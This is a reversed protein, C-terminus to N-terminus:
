SRPHCDRQYDSGCHNFRSIYLGMYKPCGKPRGLLAMRTLSKKKQKGSM